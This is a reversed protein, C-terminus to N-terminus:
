SCGRYQSATCSHARGVQIVPLDMAADPTSPGMDAANQQSGM